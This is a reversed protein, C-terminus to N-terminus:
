RVRMRDMRMAEFQAREIASLTASTAKKMNAAHQINDNMTKILGDANGKYTSDEKVANTALGIAVNSLRVMEPYRQIVLQNDVAVDTPHNINDQNNNVYILAGDRAKVAENWLNKARDERTAKAAEVAREIDRLSLLIQEYDLIQITPSKFAIMSSSPLKPTAPVTKILEDAKSTLRDVPNAGALYIKIDERRRV